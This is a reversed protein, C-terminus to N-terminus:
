WYRGYYRYHYHCNRYDHYSYYRYRTLHSCGWGPQWYSPAVTVPPVKNRLAEEAYAEAKKIDGPNFPSAMVEANLQRQMEEAASDGLAPVSAMCLLVLTSIKPRM